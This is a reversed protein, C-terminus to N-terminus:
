TRRSRQQTTLPVYRISVGKLVPPTLSANPAIEAGIGLTPSIAGQRAIGITARSGSDDTASFGSQGTYEGAARLQTINGGSDAAARDFFWTADIWQKVVTPDGAYVPQLMINAFDVSTGSDPRWTIADPSFGNRYAGLIPYPVGGSASPYFTGIATFTAVAPLYTSWQKYLTSYVYTTADFALNLPSQIIAVIEETTPNAYLHIRRIEEFQRGPFEADIVGRSLLSTQIGSLSCFGRGTYAYVVDNLVCAADPACPVFTPDVLTSQWVGAEGTIRYAGDTCLAILADTTPLLRIIKGNGIFAENPTPVHEPQNSKSWRLLNPRETTTFTRVTSSIEPLPPAYNQGNTARVTLTQFAGARDGQITYTVGLTVVPEQVQLLFTESSYVAAQGGLWSGAKGASLGNNVREVVGNIELMDDVNIIHTGAVSCNANMTVTTTGVSIITANVFGTGAITFTRQGPVLGVMDAASIGTVTPSGITTTGTFTRRGIGNKRMTANYGVTTGSGDDFIGGPVAIVVQPDETINAYFTYTGWQAMAKCVPPPLNAGTSGEQYPSTYIEAGTTEYLPSTMVQTDNFAVFRNSIDTADLVKSTVMRMSTGSDVTSDASSIGASRYLEAIDGVRYDTALAWQYTSVFRQPISSNGGTWVRVAPSPPSIQTYGDAAVRRMVCAYTVVTLGPIVADGTFGFNQAINFLKPQVLGAARLVRAPASAPADSDCVLVGKQSNLWIRKRFVQPTLYGLPNFLATSTILSSPEYTFQTAPDGNLYVNWPSVYGTAADVTITVFVGPAAGFIRYVMHNVPGTKIVFETNRAIIWQNAARALLNSMRSASGEPYVGFENPTTVLGQLAFMTKRPVGTVM